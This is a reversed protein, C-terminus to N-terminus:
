EGPESELRYGVSCAGFEHPPTTTKPFALRFTTGVGKRSECTIQGNYNHVIAYSISLGLGTGHGAEKTTFFPVFLQKCTEEDMGTGNDEIEVLIQLTEETRCRTRITIQKEWDATTPAEKEDLADRANALLNLLVQELHRPHGWIPPLATGLDLVVKIGHNSLQTGILKLSSHIAENVPFSIGPDGSTDRSFLLLQDITGELRGVVALIDTMMEQLREPPLTVGELHRQFIDGAITSVVSLPQVLEHAVGAAMQGLAVLRSSQLLQMELERAEFAQSLQAATEDLLAREYPIDQQAQCFLELQGREKGGWALPRTYTTQPVTLSPGFEWTHGDHHIHIHTPPSGVLVDLLIRGTTDVMEDVSRTAELETRLRQLYSLQTLQTDLQTRAAIEQRLHRDRRVVRFTQIIALSLLLTLSTLIWYKQWWPPEVVFTHVAPSPDINGKRDRARVAFRHSASPLETFTTDTRDSWSSWPANDLRWQFQLEQAPTDEWADRGSWQLQVTGVSSVRDVPSVLKTEPQDRFLHPRFHIVKGSSDDIWFSGDRTPHLTPFLWGLDLGDAQAYRVWSTGDFRTLGKQGAFWLAGDGALFLSSIGDGVLGEKASFFTWQQGDYRGVGGERNPLFAFWLATPTSVFSRVKPRYVPFDAKNWWDTEGAPASLAFRSIGEETGVWLTGAPWEAIGTIYNSSLGDAETHHRWTEGNFRFLGRGSNERGKPLDPLLDWFGGEKGKPADLTAFWFTGDTAEYALHAWDGVLGYRQWHEGDFRCVAARGEHQGVFWLSGDRTEILAPHFFGGYRPIFIRDILGDQPTYLTWRSGDYRAAAGQGQHTGVFWLAGDSTQKMDFVAGELFGDVAGYGTWVGDKYRVAKDVIEPPMKGKLIWGYLADNRYLGVATHFWVSGDDAEYGGALRHPHAYTTARSLSDFRLIKRSGYGYKIFWVVGQQTSIGRFPQGSFQMFERRFIILDAPEPPLSDPDTYTKWTTGDFRSICTHNCAFWLTGDPAELMGHVNNGGLGDKQTYGAWTRGDFRLVGRTESMFWIAGDATQYLYQMAPTWAGEPGPVAEWNTGNYRTIAGRDSERGKGKIHIGVWLTGDQAQLFDGGVIPEKLGPYLADIRHTTWKNGDFRSLGKLTFFWMAGDQAQLVRLVADDALGDHSTYTDWHTGDYRQAGRDTAIWIHGDRDEVLDTVQGALGSGADFTTWRDPDLFLDPSTVALTDLALLSGTFPGIVVLLATLYKFLTNEPLRWGM